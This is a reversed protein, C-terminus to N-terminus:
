LPVRKGGGGGMVSGGDFQDMWCREWFFTRVSPGVLVNTNELSRECAFCLQAVVLSRRGVGPITARELIVGVALTPKIDFFFENTSSALRIVSHQIAKTREWQVPVTKWM